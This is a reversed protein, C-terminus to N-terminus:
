GGFVRFVSNSPRNEKAKRNFLPGSHKFHDERSNLRDNKRSGDTGIQDRTCAGNGGSVMHKKSHQNQINLRNEGMGETKRKPSLGVQM